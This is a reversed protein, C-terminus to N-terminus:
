SGVYSKLGSREPIMNVLGGQGCCEAASAILIELMREDSGALRGPFVPDVIKGSRLLGRFGPSEERDVRAAFIERLRVAV